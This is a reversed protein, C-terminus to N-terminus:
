ICLLNPKLFSNMTRFFFQSVKQLNIQTTITDVQCEKLGSNQLGHLNRRGSLNRVPIVPKEAKAHADSQRVQPASGEAEGVM